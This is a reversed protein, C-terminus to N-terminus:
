YFCYIVQVVGSSGGDSHTAGVYESNMDSNTGERKLVSPRSSLQSGLTPHPVNSVHSINPQITGLSDRRMGKRSNEGAQLVMM